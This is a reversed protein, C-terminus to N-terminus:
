SHLLATLSTVSQVTLSISPPPVTVCCTIRACLLPCTIVTVYCTIRTCLLPWTVDNTVILTRQCLIKRRVRWIKCHTGDERLVYGHWFQAPLTNYVTCCNGFHSRIFSMGANPPNTKSSAEAQEWTNQCGSLIPPPSLHFPFLIYTLPFIVILM